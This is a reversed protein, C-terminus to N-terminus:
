EGKAKGIAERAQSKASELAESDHETGIGSLVREGEHALLAKLAALLEANVDPRAPATNALAARAKRIAMNWQDTPEGEESHTEGDDDATVIIELAERLRDREAATEPTDGLLRNIGDRLDRAEDKTLTVWAARSSKEGTETAIFSLYDGESNFSVELRKRGKGYAQWSPTGGHIYTRAYLAATPSVAPVLKEYWAAVGNYDRFDNHKKM